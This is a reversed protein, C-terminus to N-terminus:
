GNLKEDVYLSCLWCNFLYHIVSTKLLCGKTSGLYSCSSTDQLCDDDIINTRFITYVRLLLLFLVYSRISNTRETSRNRHRCCQFSNIIEKYPNLAHRHTHVLLQTMNATYLQSGNWPSWMVPVLCSNMWVLICARGDAREARAPMQHFFFVNTTPGM